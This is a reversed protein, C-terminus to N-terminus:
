SRMRRRQTACLAQVTLASVDEGIDVAVLHRPKINWAVDYTRNAIVLDYGDTALRALWANFRTQAGTVSGSDIIGAENVISENGFWPLYMRGRNVRGSLGTQKKILMSVNAPPCLNGNSGAVNAINSQAVAAVASGNGILVNTPGITVQAGIQTSLTDAFADQIANATTLSSAGPGDNCAYTVYAARSTTSNLLRTSALILGSAYIPPDAM